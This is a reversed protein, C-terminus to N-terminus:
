HDASGKGNTVGLVYTEYMQRDLDDIVTDGTQVPGEPEGRRKAALYNTYYREWDDRSCRMLVTEFLEEESLNLGLPTV